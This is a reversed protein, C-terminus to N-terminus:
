REGYGPLRLIQRKGQPTVLRAKRSDILLVLRTDGFEDLEDGPDEMCLFIQNDFFSEGAPIRKLAPYRYFIDAYFPGTNTRDNVQGSLSSFLSDWNMGSDVHVKLPIFHSTPLLGTRSDGFPLEFDFRDTLKSIFLLVLSLIKKAYEPESGASIGQLEPLQAFPITFTGIQIRRCSCNGPVVFPLKLPLHNKLTELWFKENRIMQRNLTKIGEPYELVRAPIKSAVGIGNMSCWQVIDLNRGYKSCVELICVSGTGAAVSLRGPRCELITGPEHIEGDEEKSLNPLIYWNEM